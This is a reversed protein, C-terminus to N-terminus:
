RREVRLEFVTGNSYYSRALGVWNTLGSWPGGPAAALQARITPTATDVRFFRVAGQEGLDENGKNARHATNTFTIAPWNTVPEWANTGRRLWASLVVNSKPLAPWVLEVSKESEHGNGAVATVALYYRNTAKLRCEQIWNTVSEVMGTYSGSAPGLYLRYREALPSPNWKVFYCRNSSPAASVPPPMPPAGLTPDLMVVGVALLM